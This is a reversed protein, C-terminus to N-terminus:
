LWVILWSSVMAMILFLIGHSCNDAFLLLSIPWV